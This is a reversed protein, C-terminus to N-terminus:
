LHYRTYSVSHLNLHFHLVTFSPFKGVDSCLISKIAAEDTLAPPSRARSLKGNWVPWWPKYRPLKQKVGRERSFSWQLTGHDAYAAKLSLRHGQSSCLDPLMNCSDKKNGEWDSPQMLKPEQNTRHGRPAPLLVCSELVQRGQCSAAVSPHLFVTVLGLRSFLVM